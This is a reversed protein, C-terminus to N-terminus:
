FNDKWHRLVALTQEPSNIKQKSFQEASRRIQPCATRLFPNIYKEQLISSPLTPKNQATLKEVKTIYAQLVDNDPDVTQAFKLNTLTYEHACFVQTNDPLSSIKLLSNFMQESTGEFIRGCGGSFLTDGCFIWAQNYYAIHGLTHGPLDLVNLNVGLEPLNVQDQQSLKIHEGGSGENQPGYLIVQWGQRASYNLLQQVGSTHDQHHHTILIATLKLQHQELHEICELASGPDILACCHNNSNEICWIYNDNFAKIPQVSLMIKLKFNFPNLQNYGAQLSLL